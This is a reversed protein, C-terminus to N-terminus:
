TPPTDTLGYLSVGASSLVNLPSPKFRNGRRRVVELLSVYEAYVDKVSKTSTYNPKIPLKSIGLLGYIHDRPDTAQLFGGLTSIRWGIDNQHETNRETDRLYGIM